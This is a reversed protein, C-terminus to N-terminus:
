VISWCYSEKCVRHKMLGKKTSMQNLSYEFDNDPKSPPTDEIVEGGEQDCPPTRQELVEQEEIEAEQVTITPLTAPVQNPM